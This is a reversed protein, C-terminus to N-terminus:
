SSAEPSSTLDERGMIAAKGAATIRLLCFKKGSDRDIELLGNDAMVSVRDYLTRLRRKESFHTLYDIIPQRPREAVSKLIALDIRDLKEM